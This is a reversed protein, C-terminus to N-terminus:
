CGYVPTLWHRYRSEEGRAVAQYRAQLQLTLSGTQGQGIVRRDVERVPKIEMATGCLFVEDALYLETRDVDRVEVGAIREKVALTMLTERTISALVGATLPPTILRGDRVIFLCSGPGESIKGARNLFITSDYGDAVADLQALRSNQYNAGAKIRPPLSGDHIREWSSICCSLGATEAFARGSPRTAIFMSVPGTSYWSGFGDVLVIQRAQADEKIRNARLVKLLAEVLEQESYDVDFKMLRISERLRRYHDSLRFCYLEEQRENWYARIGEFVNIGFQASPSLVHVKAEDFPILEGNFWVTNKTPGAMKM